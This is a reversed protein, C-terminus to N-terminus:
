HQQHPPKHVQCYPQCGAQAPPKGPPPSTPPKVAFATELVPGAAYIAVLTFAAVAIIINKHTLIISTLSSSSM